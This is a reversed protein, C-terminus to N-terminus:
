GNLGILGDPLDVRITKKEEDIEQIFGAHIPILVEGKEGDVHIVPNTAHDIYDTVEGLDGAEADFVRYGLLLEPKESPDPAEQEFLHSPLYMSQKALPKAAAEDDVGEFKIRAFPGQRDFRIQEIFFPVLKNHLEVFVSELNEYRQLEPGEFFAIVEGRFSYTKSIYGLYFCDAKRM